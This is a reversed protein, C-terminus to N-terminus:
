PYAYKICKTGFPVRNPGEGGAVWRPELDGKQKLTRIMLASPPEARCVRGGQGGGSADKEESSASAHQVFTCLEAQRM